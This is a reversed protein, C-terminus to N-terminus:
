HMGDYNSVAARFVVLLIAAKIVSTGVLRAGVIQGRHFDSSDEM